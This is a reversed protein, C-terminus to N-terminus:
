TLQARLCYKLFNSVKQLKKRDDAERNQIQKGNVKEYSAVNRRRLEAEDKGTGTAYGQNTAAM